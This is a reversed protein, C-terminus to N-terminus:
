PTINLTALQRTVEAVDKPPFDVLMDGYSDFFKFMRYVEPYKAEFEDPLLGFLFLTYYYEFTNQIKQPQQQQPQQQQEAM